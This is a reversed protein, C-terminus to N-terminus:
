RLHSGKLTLNRLASQMTTSAVISNVSMPIKACFTQDDTGTKLLEYRTLSDFIGTGPIMSM